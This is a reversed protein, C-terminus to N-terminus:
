NIIQRNRARDVVKMVNQVWKDEPNACIPKSQGGRKKMLFLVARINCDGDTEQMRYDQINRQVKSKLKRVYRLCCNGYSGQALSLSLCTLLLLLIVVQIKM